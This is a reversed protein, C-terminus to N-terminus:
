SGGRQPSQRTELPCMPQAISARSCSIRKTGTIINKRTRDLKVTSNFGFICTHMINGPLCASSWLPMGPWHRYNVPATYESKGTTSALGTRDSLLLLSRIPVFSVLGMYAFTLCRAIDLYLSSFLSEGWATRRLHSRIKILGGLTLSLMACTNVEKVTYVIYHASLNPWLDNHLRSWMCAHVSMCFSVCVCLCVSMCVWPYMIIHLELNLHPWM